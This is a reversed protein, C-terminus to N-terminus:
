LGEIPTESQFAYVDALRQLREKMWSWSEECGLLKELFVRLEARREESLRRRDLCEMAGVLLSVWWRYSRSDQQELVELFRWFEPTVGEELRFRVCWRLLEAGPDHFFLREVEGWRAVSLEEWVDHMVGRVVEELLAGRERHQRVFTEVEVVPLVRHVALTYLFEKV